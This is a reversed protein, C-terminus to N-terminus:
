VLGQEFMPIHKWRYGLWIMSILGKTVSFKDAVERIPIGKSRLTRIERVQADTLKASSMKEGRARRGNRASDDANDKYTGGRSIEGNITLRTTTWTANM